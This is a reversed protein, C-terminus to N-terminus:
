PTVVIEALQWVSRSYYSQHKLEPRPDFPFLLFIPGKDSIPMAVGDQHTAFLGDGAVIDAIKAEVVYDNLAILQLNEGHVDVAEFLDRAKVGRYEVPADNWPTATVFSSQPLSDFSAADYEVSKGSRDRGIVGSVRLMPQAAYAFSPTLAVVPLATLARLIHRRNPM